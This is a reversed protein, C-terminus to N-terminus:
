RKNTEKKLLDIDAKLLSGIMIIDHMNGKKVNKSILSAVQEIRIQAERSHMYTSDMLDCIVRYNDNPNEIVNKAENQIIDIENKIPKLSELTTAMLEIFYQSQNYLETVEELTINENAYNEKELIDKATGNNIKVYRRFSDLLELQDVYDKVKKSFVTYDKKGRFEREINQVDRLLHELSFKIDEFGVNREEIEKLILDYLKITKKLGKKSGIKM